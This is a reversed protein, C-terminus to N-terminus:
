DELAKKMEPKVGFPRGNTQRSNILDVKEKYFLLWKNEEIEREEFKVKELMVLGPRLSSQRLENVWEYCSTRGSYHQYYRRRTNVTSGIYRMEKTLPHILAYIYAHSYQHIYNSM